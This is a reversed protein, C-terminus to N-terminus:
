KLLWGRLQGEPNKEAHIQVYLWGKNLDAIQAPTLTLDGSVTGSTAKTVTLPFVVPGRLGRQARHVHAATAPSTLGEFKGSIKLTNGDFTATLSGTGAMELANAANAPLPSLRAKFSEAATLSVWLVLAVAITVLPFTRVIPM